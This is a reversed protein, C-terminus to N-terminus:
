EELQEGAPLNYKINDDWHCYHCFESYPRSYFQIMKKTLENPSKYKRINVLENEIGATLEMNRSIYVALTCQSLIGDCLINCYRGFCSDYVSKVKLVDQNDKFIDPMSQWNAGYKEHPATFKINNEILLKKFEDYKVTFNKINGVNRYDSIQVAFKHSGANMASILEKSPLITCNTALFVNRIKKQKLAYSIMNALEKNLLPEGGVFGFCYIFDISKLLTDIDEKFVDFSVPKLHTANSFYPIKTNCHRCNMTCKTTVVYQLTPMAPKRTILFRIKQLKDFACRSYKILFPLDFLERTWGNNATRSVHKISNELFNEDIIKKMGKM